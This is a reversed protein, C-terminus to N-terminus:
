KREPIFPVATAVSIFRKRGRIGITISDPKADRGPSPATTSAHSRFPSTSGSSRILSTERSISGRAPVGRLALKQIFVRQRRNNGVNLNNGVNWAHTITTTTPVPNNAAEGAVADVSWNCARRSALLLGTLSKVRSCSPSTCTVVTVLSGSSTQSVE